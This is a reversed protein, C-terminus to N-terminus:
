RTLENHVQESGGGAMDRCEDSQWLEDFYAVLQSVTRYRWVLTSSLKTCLNQELQNRLMLARLSDLGLTHFPVDTGIGEADLGLLRSVLERLLLEIAKRRPRGPHCSLIRRVVNSDKMSQNANSSGDHVLSSLFPDRVARPHIECWRSLDFRMVGAQAASAGLLRDLADWAERPVIGHLGRRALDESRDARAAKGLQAWPGWNISLASLGQGRRDYAVADLFANAAAHNAQGPSGILSAISSFLLFLDLNLGRTRRQLNQTGAIKPEMVAKFRQWSLNALLGDDLHGACQVVGAVAPFKAEIRDFLRDVERACGVNAQEVMVEVSAKELTRIVERATKSPRRRGFLVLYRAGAEVLRGAAALGLGGFGGAVVYTANARVVRELGGHPAGGMPAMQELRPVRAAGNRFAIEEEGDSGQLVAVLQQLDEGDEPDLDVRLCRFEPHEYALARGLGLLPSQAVLPRERKRTSHAGRTVLFLPTNQWRELSLLAQVLHLTSACTREVAVAITDSSPEPDVGDLAWLSIVGLCSQGRGFHAELMRRFGEGDTPDLRLAEGELSTGHRGAKVEICPQGAAVLHARLADGFGGTDSLLLWTGKRARIGDCKPLELVQWRVQYLSTPIKADHASCDTASLAKVVLGEVRVIIRGEDDSLQVDGILSGDLAGDESHVGARCLYADSRRAAIRLRRIGVPVYIQVDSTSRTQLAALLTQFCFDLLYAAGDDRPPSVRAVAEGEDNWVSLLGQFRAGFHLGRREWQRYLEEGSYSPSHDPQGFQSTSMADPARKTERVLMGTAHVEWSGQQSLRSSFRFTWSDQDRPALCLQLVCAETKRVFLPQHIVVDEIRCTDAALVKDTARLVSALYASAPVVPEANISHEESFVAVDSLNAQWYHTGPDVSSELHQGLLVYDGRNEPQPGLGHTIVRDEADIWCRRRQWRYLPLRVFRAGPECVSFGDIDVGRVHLEGLSNALVRETAENRRLTPLCVGAVELQRFIEELSTALTPHPSIELFIRHGEGILREVAEHFRVMNRLNCGWYKADLDAGLVPEGTVTSILAVTPACVRLQGLQRVLEEAMPQVRSSHGPVGNTRLTRCFVNRSELREVITDLAKQDGSLVTSRPGNCAAIEIRDSVDEIVERADKLPLEVAVMSGSHMADRLLRSRRVIVEIADELRLAGSVCAAAVEGMSHGVVVAPVVGFAKWMEALALQFAFLVVQTIDIDALSDNEADGFHQLLSWEALGHMAADCREITRRFVANSTLLKRGPASWESGQGPFVFVVRPRGGVDLHGKIVGPAGEGRVFADLGVLAQKRSFATVALRYPHHHRRTIASFVVDRFPAISGPGRSLFEVYERAMSRLAEESRGSITLFGPHLQVKGRDVLPKPESPEELVVHANTGGIGFSSVGARRRSNGLTWPSWRRNVYFPGDEFRINPNPAEYNVTPPLVKHKLALATKILGAVGAAVELHGINAKTSGVACANHTSCRFAKTLAAIEIPDGLPTGTGHAEVYSVSSPEVGGVRMAEAVVAAQSDVSPATFGVKSSGDNNIAFGKIVADIRDADALAEPLRKLVVVGAGNGFVTGTARADFPRCHGDRSLYGGEIPRYGVSQPVRISVGGALAMDCEGALLSRCAMHVAVLSTSCATQIGVSPGKLGLLYSTRTALYDKENAIMLPLDLISSRFGRSPMVHLLFYSSLSAGAFVGIAAETQTPDYGASELAEWACELFIRHQPDTLAAEAPSLGFFAADFLEIGELQFGRHLYSEDQSGNGLRDDPFKTLSEVGDRVNCWFEDLDKAGPFRGAMGIIAVDDAASEMNDQAM